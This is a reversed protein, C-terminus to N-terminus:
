YLFVAKVRLSFLYIFQHKQSRDTSYPKESVHEPGEEGGRSHSDGRQKNPRVRVTASTVAPVLVRVALETGTGEGAHCLQKGIFIGAWRSDSSLCGGNSM